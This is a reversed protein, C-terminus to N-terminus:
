PRGPCGSGDEIRRMRSNCGTFTDLSHHGHLAKLEVDGVGDASLAFAFRTSALLLYLDDTEFSTSCSEIPSRSALFV